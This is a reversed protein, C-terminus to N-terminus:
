ALFIFSMIKFGFIRLSSLSADCDFCNNLVSRYKKLPGNQIVDIYLAFFVM